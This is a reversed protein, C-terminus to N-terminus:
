EPAEVTERRIERIGLASVVLTVREDDEWTRWEAENYTKAWTRAEEGEDPHSELFHVTYTASRAGMRQDEDRVNTPPWHPSLGLGSTVRPTSDVWRDVKYHYYTQYVPESRYVAEQRTGSQYRETRYVPTTGSQYRETRFRGNGLSVTRTSYTPRTGTQVQRTSYTPVTKYHDVVQRHHHVRRSTSVDYADSPHDWGDRNIGRTFEEVKQVRQWSHHTIQAPVEETRVLLYIGLILLLAGAVGGAIKGIKGWDPVFPADGHPVIPGLPDLKRGRRPPDKAHEDLVKDHDGDGIYNSVPDEINGAYEDQISVDSASGGRRRAVVKGADEHRKTGDGGCDPCQSEGAAYFQGCYDCKVDAGAEAARIGATDTIVEANTPLYFEVDDPRGAGCAHCDYADGMVGKTGCSSCDWRGMLIAM